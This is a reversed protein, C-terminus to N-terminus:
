MENQIKLTQGQSPAENEQTHKCDLDKEILLNLFIDEAIHQQTEISFQPSDAWNQVLAQPLRVMINGNQFAIRPESVAESVTLTYSMVEDSAFGFCTKESVPRGQRIQAVEYSNLRFRVSNGQLRLKM